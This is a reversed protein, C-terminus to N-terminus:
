SEYYFAIRFYIFICLGVKSVVSKKLFTCPIHGFSNIIIGRGLSFALRKREFTKM